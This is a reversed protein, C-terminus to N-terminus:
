LNDIELSEDILGAQRFVKDIDPSGIGDPETVTIMQGLQDNPKFYIILTLTLAVASVILNLAMIILLAIDM